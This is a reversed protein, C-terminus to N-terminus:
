KGRVPDLAVPVARAKAMGVYDTPLRSSQWALVSASPFGTM